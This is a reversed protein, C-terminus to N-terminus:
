FGRMMDAAQIPGVNEKEFGGNRVLPLRLLREVLVVPNSNELGWGPFRKTGSYCGTVPNTGNWLTLVVCHFAVNHVTWLDLWAPLVSVKCALSGRWRKSSEMPRTRMWGRLM